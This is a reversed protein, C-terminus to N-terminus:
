SVRKILGNEMTIEAYWKRDYPSPGVVAFKGDATYEQGFMSTETYRLPKGVNEKLQKKTKYNAALMKFVGGFLYLSRVSCEWIIGALASNLL